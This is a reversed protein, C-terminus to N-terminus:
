TSVGVRSPVLPRSHHVGTQDVAIRPPLEESCRSPVEPSRRSNWHFPRLNRGANPHRRSSVPKGRTPLFRTARPCVKMTEESVRPMTRPFEPVDYAEAAILRTECNANRRQSPRGALLGEPHRAVCHLPGSRSSRRCPLGTFPSRMPPSPLFDTCIYYTSNIYGSIIFFLFIKLCEIIGKVHNV